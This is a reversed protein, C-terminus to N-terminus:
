LVLYCVVCFILVVYWVLVLFGVYGALWRLCSVVVMAYTCIVVIWWVYAVCVLSIRLLRFVVCIVFLLRVYFLLSLGCCCGPRM